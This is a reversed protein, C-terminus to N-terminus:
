QDEGGDDLLQVVMDSVGPACRECFYGDFIVVNERYCNLCRGENHREVHTLAATRAAAEADVADPVAALYGAIFWSFATDAAAPTRIM